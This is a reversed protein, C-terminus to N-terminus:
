LDRGLVRYTNINTAGFLMEIVDIFLSFKTYSFKLRINHLIRAVSCTLTATYRWAGIRSTCPEFRPRTVVSFVKEQSHQNEEVEVCVALIDVHVM